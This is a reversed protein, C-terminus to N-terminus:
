LNTYIEKGHEVLKNLEQRSLLLGYPLFPHRRVLREKEKPSMSNRKLWEMGYVAYIGLEQLLTEFEKPLELVRGQTLRTYEQELEYEEKELNKRVSDLEKLKRNFAEFIKEESFLEKEELNLYRLINKRIELEKQYHERRKEQQFLEEKKHIEETKIDELCREQERLREKNKEFTKKKETRERNKQEWERQFEEELIELTGPEYEGLINRRLSTQYRENYIQELRDYNNSKTERITVQRIAQQIDEEIRYLKEKEATNEERRQEICIQNEKQTTQNELVKNEYHRKLIGGLERREPELEEESQRAAVLRQQLM